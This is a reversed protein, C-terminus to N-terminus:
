TTLNMFASRKKICKPPKHKIKPDDLTTCDVDKKCKDPGCFNSEYLPHDVQGSFEQCELGPQKCKNSNIDCPIPKM